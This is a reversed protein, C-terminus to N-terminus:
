WTISWVIFGGRNLGHGCLLRGYDAEKMNSVTWRGKWSLIGWPQCMLLHLPSSHSRQAELMALKDVSIPPYCAHLPMRLTPRSLLAASIRLQRETALRCRLLTRKVIKPICEESCAAHVCRQTVPSHLTIRPLPFSSAFHFSSLHRWLIPQAPTRCHM